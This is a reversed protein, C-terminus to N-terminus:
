RRGPQDKCHICERIWIQYGQHKWIYDHFGFFCMVSHYRTWKRIYFWFSNWFKQWRTPVHRIKFIQGSQQQMPQVGIMKEAMLTPNMKSLDVPIEIPKWKNM